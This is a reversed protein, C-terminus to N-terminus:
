AMAQNAQVKIRGQNFVCLPTYIRPSRVTLGRYSAATPGAQFKALPSTALYSKGLVQPLDTGLTLKALPSTPSSVLPSGVLNSQLQFHLFTSRGPPRHPITVAIVSQIWAQQM